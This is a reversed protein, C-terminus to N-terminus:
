ITEGKLGSIVLEKARKNLDAAESKHMNVAMQIAFEIMAKEGEPTFCCYEPGVSSYYFYTPNHVLEKTGGYFLDKVVSKNM